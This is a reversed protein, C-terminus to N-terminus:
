DTEAHNEGGKERLLGFEEFISVFLPEELHFTIYESGLGYVKWEAPDRMFWMVTPKKRFWGREQSSICWYVKEDTKEKEFEMCIVSYVINDLTKGPLLREDDTKLALLEQCVRKNKSLYRPMYAFANKYRYSFHQLEMCNRRFQPYAFKEMTKKGTELVWDNRLSGVASGDNEKYFPM